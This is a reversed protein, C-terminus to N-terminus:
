GPLLSPQRESLSLRHSLLLHMSHPLTQSSKHPSPSVTRYDKSREYEHHQDPTHSQTLPVSAAFFTMSFNQGPGNVTIKFLFLQTGSPVVPPSLVTAIRIGDWGSARSKIRSLPRIIAAGLAFVEFALDLMPMEHTHLYAPFFEM